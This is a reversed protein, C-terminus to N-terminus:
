NRDLVGNAAAAATTTPPPTGPQIEMSDPNPTPPSSFEVNTQAPTYASPPLHDINFDLSSHKPQDPHFLQEKLQRGEGSSSIYTASEEMSSYDSKSVGPVKSPLLDSDSSNNIEIPSANGLSPTPSSSNPSVPETFQTKRGKKSNMKESWWTHADSINSFAKVKGGRQKRREAEEMSTVIGLDSDPGRTWFTVWAPNVKKKPKGRSPTSPKCSHLSENFGSHTKTRNKPQPDRLWNVAEDLTTCGVHLAKKYGHVLPGVM